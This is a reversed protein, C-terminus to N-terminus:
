KQMVINLEKVASEILTELEEETIGFKFKSNIFELVYEKKVNGMGTEKYIQEAASVAIKIWKELKYKRILGLGYTGIVVVLIRIIYDVILLITQKEM